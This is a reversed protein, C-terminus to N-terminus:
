SADPKKSAKEILDILDEPRIQKKEGNAVAHRLSALGGGLGAVAVAILSNIDAGQYWLFGVVVVTAISSAYTKWGSFSLKKM